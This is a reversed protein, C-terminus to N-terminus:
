YRVRLSFQVRRPPQASVAEGFFPSSINGVYYSYNVHNLANFSEFIAEMRLRESVHFERSLRANVSLLDFGKGGNRPIFAGNITPRATTGQVTTNGTQAFTWVYSGDQQPTAADIDFLIGGVQGPDAPGHIHAATDPRGGMLPMFSIRYCLQNTKTDFTFFGVLGPESFRM